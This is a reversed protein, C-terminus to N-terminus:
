TLKRTLLRGDKDYVEIWNYKKRIGLLKLVRSIARNLDMHIILPHNLFALVDQPTAKGDKFEKDYELLIPVLDNEYINGTTIWRKFIEDFM